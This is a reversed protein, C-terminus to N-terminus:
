KCMFNACHLFVFIIETEECSSANLLADFYRSPHSKNVTYEVVFPKSLM